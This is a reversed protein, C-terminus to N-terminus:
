NANIYILWAICYQGCTREHIEQYQVTNYHVKRSRRLSELYARLIRPYYIGFSDFAFVLGGEQYSVALWHEGPLNSTQTNIIFNAPAKMTRSFPIKDLPFVGKFFPVYKDGLDWLEGTRM